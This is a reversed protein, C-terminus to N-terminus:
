GTAAEVVLRGKVNSMGNTNSLACSEPTCHLHGTVGPRMWDDCAAFFPLDVVSAVPM